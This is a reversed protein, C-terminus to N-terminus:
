SHKRWRIALMTIDDSQEAGGVFDKVSMHIRSTIERMDLGSSASAVRLLAEEGYQESYINEAETIGDTYLLLSDNASLQMTEGEFTFGDLAGTPINPKVTLYEAKDGSIYVPANHGANCYNLVGSNLDLVGIFLTCFMNKENGYALGENIASVIKSPDDTYRGVNRFLHVAASMFLAASVGKGSVDGLCFFLRESHIFFDYLDGGVTRAPCLIGHMELEKRQPFSHPTMGQQIEAAIHIDRELIAKQETTDRLDSIYHTLERQMLVFNDRLHRIDTNMKIEPLPTQFDGKSVADAADAIKRLPRVMWRITFILVVSVILFMIVLIIIFAVNLILTTESQDRLPVSVSMNWGVKDITQNTSFKYKEGDGEVTSNFFMDDNEKDVFIKKDSSKSILRKDDNYIVRDKESQIIISTHETTKSESILDRLWDITVDACLATKKKKDSSVVLTVVNKGHRKYPESWVMCTDGALMLMCSDIEARGSREMVVYVSDTYSGANSRIASLQEPSFHGKWSLALASNLVNEVSHLEAGISKNLTEVMRMNESGNTIVDNIVTTTRVLVYGMLTMVVFLILNIRVSLSSWIRKLKNM